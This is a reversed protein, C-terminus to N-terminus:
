PDHFDYQYIVKKYHLKTRQEANEGENLVLIKTLNMRLDLLFSWWM